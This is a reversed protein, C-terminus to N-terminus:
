DNNKIETASLLALMACVFVCFLAPILPTEPNAIAKIWLGALVMNALMLVAWIMRM